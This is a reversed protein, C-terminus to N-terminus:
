AGIHASAPKCVQLLATSKFRKLKDKGEQVLTKIVQADEIGQKVGCVSCVCVRKTNSYQHQGAQRQLQIGNRQIEIRVHAM